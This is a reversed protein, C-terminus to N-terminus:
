CLELVQVLIGRVRHLYPNERPYDPEEEWEGCDEEASPMRGRIRGLFRRLFEWWHSKRNEHGQGKQERM